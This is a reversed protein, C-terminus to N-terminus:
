KTKKNAEKLSVWMFDDDVIVSPTSEKKPKLPTTKYEWWEKGDYEYRELWFDKGTLLLDQVVAPSGYGDNYKKDALEEFLEVSFWGFEESGCWEIDILTKDHENLVVKTEELLNM